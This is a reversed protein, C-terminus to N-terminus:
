IAISQVGTALLVQCGVPTPHTVFFPLAIIAELFNERTGTPHNSGQRDRNELRTTGFKRSKVKAKQSKVVQSEM